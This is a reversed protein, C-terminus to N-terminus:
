NVSSSINLTLLGTAIGGKPDSVILKIDCLSNAPATTSAIFNTQASTPALLQGTCINGTTAFSWQYSLADGNPDSAVSNLVVMQGPAIQGDQVTMSTIVPSENFTVTVDAGTPSAYALTTAVQSTIGNATVNAVLTMSGACTSTVSTSAGNTPNFTTTGCGASWSYTIPGGLPNSATVTATVVEGLGPAANSVTLASVVPAANAYVSADMQQLRLALLTVHNSTVAISSAAGQYITANSSDKAIASFDYSGVGLTVQAEAQGGSPTLTITTTSGSGHLGYTLDVSVVDSALASDVSAVVRVGNSDSSSNSTTGGCAVLLMGVFMAIYRM